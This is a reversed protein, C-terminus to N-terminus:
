RHLVRVKKPEEEVIVKLRPMEQGGEVYNPKRIKLRLDLTVNKRLLKM